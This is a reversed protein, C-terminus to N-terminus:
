IFAAATLWVYEYMGRANLWGPAGVILTKARDGNNSGSKDISFSFGFESFIYYDSRETNYSSPPLLVETVLGTVPSIFYCIGRVTDFMVIERLEHLYCTLM